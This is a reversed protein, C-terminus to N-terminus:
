LKKKLRKLSKKFLDSETRNELVEESYSRLESKVLNGNDFKCGIEVGTIGKIIGFGHMKNEAWQGMYLGHNKIWMFGIGHRKNEKYCGKYM